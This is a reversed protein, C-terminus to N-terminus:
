TAQPATTLENMMQIRNALAMRRSQVDEYEAQFRKVQDSLAVEQTCLTCYEQELRERESRGGAAEVPKFDACEGTVQGDTLLAEDM